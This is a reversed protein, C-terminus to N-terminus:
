NEDPRIRSSICAYCSGSRLRAADTLSIVGSVAPQEEPLVFLRHLDKLIMSKIASEVPDNEYCFAVPSSMIKDATVSLDKGHRYCLTIDTKSIVGKPYNKDDSVLIAGFKSASLIEVVSELSTDKKCSEVKKTMVEHVKYRKVRDKMNEKNKNFLGQDCNSCYHYLLGVIDPYAIVGAIKKSDQDLAYLRYIKNTKMTDLASDLTDDPRCFLPPSNMIMEVPASLPLGSYWAGMIDTKSVVGLPEKEDSSVLIANVKYKILYRICCDISDDPSLVVLQKRMSHRVRLGTLTDKGMKM